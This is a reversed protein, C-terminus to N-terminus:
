LAHFRNLRYQRRINSVSTRCRFLRVTLSKSVLCTEEQGNNACEEFSMADCHWCKLAQYNTEPAAQNEQAVALTALLIAPIKM